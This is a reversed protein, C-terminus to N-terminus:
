LVGMKPLYSGKKKKRKVEAEGPCKKEIQDLDSRTFLRGARCRRALFLM